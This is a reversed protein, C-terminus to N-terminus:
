GEGSHQSVVLGPVAELLEGPRYVTRADLQQQTVVGENATGAEGLVSNRSGQVEVTPLTATATAATQAWLTAPLWAGGAMCAVLCRRQFSSRRRHPATM